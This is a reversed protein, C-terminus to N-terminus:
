VSPSSTLDPLSFWPLGQNLACLEAEWIGPLGLRTRIRPTQTELPLPQSVPTSLSVEAGLCGTHTSKEADELGAGLGVCVCVCVVKPTEKNAQRDGGEGESM